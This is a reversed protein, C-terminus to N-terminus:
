RFVLKKIFGKFRRYKVTILWPNYKKEFRELDKLNDPQLDKGGEHLVKVNQIYEVMFKYLFHHKSIKNKKVFDHLSSIVSISDELLKKNVRGQTISGTGWRRYYATYPICLMSNLSSFIKLSFDTDEYYVGERFKFDKIIDTKTIYIWPVACINYFNINRWGRKPYFVKNFQLGQFFAGNFLQSGNDADSFSIGCFSLLDVNHKKITDYLLQCANKDIFDDSDIFWIYEGAANKIGTNRAAGQKKNTEHHFVKVRSDKTKYEELIGLSNDTSCDDVCIIEIDSLTQSICSNLCDKLDKESNYVPIIISIKPVSM